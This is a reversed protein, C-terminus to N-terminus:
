WRYKVMCILAEIGHWIRIKKGEAISRSRYQIPVERVTVGLRSVKATFEPCFGFGNENLCIRTLVERKFMKYCTAEDTLWLGTILNSALTLCRNGLRHWWITRSQAGKGFRSGYVVDVGDQLILNLMRGYEDPNYELDADQIIIVKATSAALGTRVAAGKGQNKKHFLVKLRVHSHQRKELRERSGDTSGDDVVILENVCPQALVQDLITDLTSIENFVPMIVSLCPETIPKSKGAGVNRPLAGNLHSM